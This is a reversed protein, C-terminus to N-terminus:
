QKLSDCCSIYWKAVRNHCFKSFNPNCSLEHNALFDSALVFKVFNNVGQKSITTPDTFCQQVLETMREETLYTELQKEEEESLKSKRKEKERIAKEQKTEKFEWVLSTSLGEEDTYKGQYLQNEYQMLQRIFGDNPRILDRREKLYDYAEKLTFQKYKMLFALVFSASRSKGIVCHVLIRKKNSQAQMIYEIAEEFYPIIQEEKEDKLEIRKYIVSSPLYKGAPWEKTVNLIYAIENKEVQISDNADLGSGLYLFDEIVTSMGSPFNPERRRSLKKKSALLGEKSVRIFRDSDKKGESKHYLGFFSSIAHVFKREITSLEVPFDHSTRDKDALLDKMQQVISLSNKNELYIMIDLEDKEPPHDDYLAQLDYAQQEIIMLTESLWERVPLSKDVDELHIGRISFKTDDDYCGVQKIKLVIANYLEGFTMGELQSSSFCIPIPEIFCSHINFSVPGKLGHQCFKLAQEDEVQEDITSTNPEDSTPLMKKTNFTEHQPANKLHYYVTTSSFVLAHSFSKHFLLHYQGVKTMVTKLNKMKQM